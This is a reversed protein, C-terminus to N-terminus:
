RRTDDPVSFRVTVLLGQKTSREQPKKTINSIGCPITGLDLLADFAEPGAESIYANLPLRYNKDHFSEWNGPNVQPFSQFLDNPIAWIDDDDVEVSLSLDLQSSTASFESTTLYELEPTNTDFSELTPLHLNFENVGKTVRWPYHRDETNVVLDATLTFVQDINPGQGLVHQLEQGKAEWAKDITLLYPIAFADGADGGDDM